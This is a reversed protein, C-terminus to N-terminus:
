SRDCGVPGVGPLPPRPCPCALAPVQRRGHDTGRDRHGLGQVAQPPEGRGPHSPQGGRRARGVRRRKRAARRWSRALNAVVDGASLSASVWPRARARQTVGAAVDSSDSSRDGVAQRARACRAGCQPPSDRERWWSRLTPRWRDRLKARPCVSRTDFECLNARNGTLNPRHRGSNSTGGSNSRIRVAETRGFEVDNGVLQLRTQGIVRGSKPLCRGANSSTARAEDRFALQAVFRLM